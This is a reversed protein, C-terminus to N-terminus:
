SSSLPLVISFKTGSGVKSEIDIKGNHALIIHKVISLGLGTGGSKRSRSKDVVYFREFIRSLDKEPIGIGTDEIEIKIMKDMAKLSIKIKGKDTYKVANDILNILMQELKFSDAKIHPFPEQVDLEVNIEKNKLKGEFIKLTNEVLTKLDLNELKLNFGKEELESLGLLDNVINILRDTHNRIIELYPKNKKDKEEDLTEAFGKIVTLPTRLEHSVNVVFDKKIKELAKIQTIDHFIVIIEEKSSVFTASSLFVKDNIEIEKTFNSKTERVNKILENFAPTRLFNLYTTEEISVNGIIRNFSNNSLLLKNDKDLVLLGEQITFIIGSLEEKQHSLESFLTKIQISMYNFSDALERLEDSSKIPVKVDFNGQAIVRAASSLERINNTINQSILFAILLSFLFIIIIIPLIKIKLNYILNNIDKLFLSTRLIGILKGDKEIPLAIYIMKERVTTSLRISEGFKDKLVERIEPRNKHNEMLKPDKESDAFVLGQPSIVTIRVNIKKGLDKVFNDLEQYRTEELYPLVQSELSFCLNKLDGAITEIYHNKTTNFSLIAILGTLGFIIFFYGTFIKFIISKRM